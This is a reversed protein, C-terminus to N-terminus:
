AEAILKEIHHTLSGVTSLPSDETEFASDDMLTINKGFVEEAITEVSVLFRVLTLSDLVSDEGLLVFTPDSVIKTNRELGSNVEEIATTVIKLADSM